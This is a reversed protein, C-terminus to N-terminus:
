ALMVEANKAMKGNSIKGISDLTVQAIESLAEETFFAQHATILVNPFSMLRQITDDEIINESLDKFFLKEEQEYVDICLAGVKKSKLAEIVDITHILGGRSTNIITVGNKMQLLAEANIMYHNQPTLPCHLSIIDSQKLLTELSVYNIGQDILAKDPFLDYALINCGFGKVINMFAKGIKGTGIVGITKGHLNFGLLGNLSFNQERVRNYAKHTKRNITLLMAMTHEAVAEPSYAPVRCVAINLRKATELDVNNFGACRLAIIKVGKEHLLEIVEGNLKDNVFVCVVETNNLVNVINKDLATEYYELQFNRNYKDFFVKDYPQSSFFAIKM